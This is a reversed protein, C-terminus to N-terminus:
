HPSKAMAKNIVAELFPEVEIGHKKKIPPPAELLHAGLLQHLDAGQFPLQGSVLQYLTVGLAYIDARHDIHKSSALQEPALYHPTGLIAQTNTQGSTDELSKAIGFDMVKPQDGEHKDLLINSPKLDRHVIKNRHAYGVARLVPLFIATIAEPSFGGGQRALREALDEGEVWDMVMGMSGDEDIIDVVRVLNPHQLRFQLKAERKFRERIGANKSLHDQLFKIAVHTELDRHWAQYVIAQGGGGLKKRIEYKGLTTGELQATSIMKEGRKRRQKEFTGKVARAYLAIRTIALFPYAKSSTLRPFSEGEKSM